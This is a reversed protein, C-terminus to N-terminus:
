TSGLIFGWVILILIRPKYAFIHPVATHERGRGRVWKYPLHLINKFLWSAFCLKTRHIKSHSTAANVPRQSTTTPRESRHVVSRCTV